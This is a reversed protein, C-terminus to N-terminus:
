WVGDLAKAEKADSLLNPSPPKSVELSRVIDLVKLQTEPTASKGNNTFSISELLERTLKTSNFTSSASRLLQSIRNTRLANHFYSTM